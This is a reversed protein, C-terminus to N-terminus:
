RYKHRELRLALLSGPPTDPPPQFTDVAKDTAATKLDTPYGFPDVAKEAAATKLDDVREPRVM